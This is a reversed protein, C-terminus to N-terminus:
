IKQQAFAGGILTVGFALLAMMSLALTTRRNM